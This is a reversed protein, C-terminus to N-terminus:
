GEEAISERAREHLCSDSRWKLIVEIQTLRQACAAYLVMELRTCVPLWLARLPVARGIYTESIMNEKFGKDDGLKEARKSQARQHQTLILPIDLM